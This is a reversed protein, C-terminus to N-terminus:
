YKPPMQLRKVFDFRFMKQEQNRAARRTKNEYAYPTAHRFPYYIAALWGGQPRAVGLVAM